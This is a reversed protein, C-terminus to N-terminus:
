KVRLMNMEFQLSVLTRLREMGLFIRAARMQVNEVLRLQGGYGMGRSWLTVGNGSADGRAEYLDVRLRRWQLGAGESGIM